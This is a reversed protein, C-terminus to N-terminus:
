PAAIPHTAAPVRHWGVTGCGLGWFCGSGGSSTTGYLNGTGDFIVGSLPEGGDSLGAFGYLVSETWGSGSPTLKLV